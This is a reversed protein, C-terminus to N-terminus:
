VKTLGKGQFFGGINGDADRVMLHKCIRHWSEGWKDLYADNVRPVTIRGCKSCDTIYDRTAANTEQDYGM